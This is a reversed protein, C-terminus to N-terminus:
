KVVDTGFDMDYGFPSSRGTVKRFCEILGLKKARLLEYHM